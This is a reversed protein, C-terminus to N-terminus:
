VPTAPPAARPIKDLRSGLVRGSIPSGFFFGAEVCDHFLSVAHAIEDTEPIEISGVGGGALVHTPIRSVVETRLFGGHDAPLCGCSCTGIKYARILIFVDGPRDLGSPLAVLPRTM